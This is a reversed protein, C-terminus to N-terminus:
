VKETFSGLKIAPLKATIAKLFKKVGGSQGGPPMAALFADPDFNLNRLQIMDVGTESLFELWAAQEETRDNLGPFLLMNLSVYVGHQKAYAISRKVDGLSYKAQYYAQYTAPVASIISVRMSNLGADVITKIGQTFGANTNINIQGRATTDRIKKISAAITEAALSPEGECGQGFSIIPEPAQTLHYVGIAAVEAATPAFNIRSQPAPCCEAPQLSICGLCNANCAPSVPIGAEWRRYFLNQATCCHWTLSCNALHEVLRNDPLDRKVRAVRKKLDPTNYCYPHWKANDTTKIAAVYIEDNYLAAATYGYLPLLPANRQREYAPLLTRTYGVPLMVAVALRGKLMQPTDGKMQLANRGPLFMLEAGEPLPIMDQPRLTLYDQGQRGVAHCGPADFIEGNKDAYLTTIM